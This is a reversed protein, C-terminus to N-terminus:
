HDALLPLRRLQLRPQCGPARGLRASSIQPHGANHNHVIAISSAPAAIRPPNTKPSFPPYPLKKSILQLKPALSFRPPNNEPAVPWLPPLNKRCNEHGITQGHTCGVLRWPPELRQPYPPLPQHASLRPCKASYPSPTSTAPWFQPIPRQQPLSFLESIFQHSHPLARVLSDTDKLNPSNFWNLMRQYLCGSANDNGISPSYTSRYLSCAGCCSYLM